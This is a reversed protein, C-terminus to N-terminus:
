DQGARLVNMFLVGLCGFLLIAGGLLRADAMFLEFAAALAVVILIGLALAGDDIFLGSVERGIATITKM